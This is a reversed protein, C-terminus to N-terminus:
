PRPACMIRVLLRFHPARAQLGQSAQLGAIGPRRRMIDRYVVSASGRKV